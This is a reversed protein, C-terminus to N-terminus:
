RRRGSVFALARGLTLGFALSLGAACGHWTGQLTLPAGYRSTLWNAKIVIEAVSAGFRWCTSLAWLPDMHAVSGRTPLLVGGLIM